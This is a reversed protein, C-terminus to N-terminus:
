AIPDNQATAIGAGAIVALAVFGIIKKM